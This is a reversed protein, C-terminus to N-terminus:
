TSIPDIEVRICTDVVWRSCKRTNPFRLGFSIHNELVLELGVKQISNPELVNQEDERPVITKHRAIRPGNVRLGHPFTEPPLDGLECREEGLLVNLARNLWKFFQYM